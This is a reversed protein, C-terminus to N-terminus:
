EVAASAEACCTPCCQPAGCVPCDSIIFDDHGNECKRKGNPLSSPRPKGTWHDIVENM